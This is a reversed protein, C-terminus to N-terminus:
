IPLLSHLAHQQCDTNQKLAWPPLSLEILGAHCAMACIDHLISTVHWASYTCLGMGAFLTYLVIAM